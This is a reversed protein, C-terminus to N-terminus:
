DSTQWDQRGRSWESGEKSLLREDHSGSPAGFNVNGHRQFDFVAFSCVYGLEDVHVTFQTRGSTLLM